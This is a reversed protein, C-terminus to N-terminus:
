SNWSLTADSFGADSLLTYTFSNSNPASANGYVSHNNPFTSASSQIGYVADCNDVSNGSTWIQKTSFDYTPTPAPNHLVDVVGSSQQNLWCGGFLCRWNWDASTPNSKPSNTAELIQETSATLKGNLYTQTTTEIYTHYARPLAPIKQAFLKIDCKILPVAVPPTPPPSACAFPHTDCFDSPPGEPNGQQDNPSSKELGRPDLFNAPDNGVYAYRNWSQPNNPDTPGNGLAKYPDATL